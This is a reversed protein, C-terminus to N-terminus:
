VWQQWANSTIKREYYYYYYYYYVCASFCLPFLSFSICGFSIQKRRCVTERIALRACSCNLVASHKAM